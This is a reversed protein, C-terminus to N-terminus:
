DGFMGDFLEEFKLLLPLQLNPHSTSLHACNNKVISPLDAKDYKADLIKLVRKTVNRTSAPEQSLCTNQKLARSISPKLQLNSINRMSLLVEDITITKEKVDM